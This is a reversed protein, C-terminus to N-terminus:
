QWSQIMWSLKEHYAILEILLDETVCDECQRAEKLAEKLHHIIIEQDRGLDHLMDEESCDILADKLVTHEKYFALGTPIKKGFFRIREAIEDVSEAMKKYIDELFLHQTYFRPGTINWHYNQAKNYFVYTNALVIKLSQVLSTHM